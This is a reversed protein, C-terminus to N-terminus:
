SPTRRTLESRVIRVDDPAEFGLKTVTGVQTVTITIERGDVIVVISENLRRGLVLM